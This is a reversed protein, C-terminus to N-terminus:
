RWSPPSIAAPRNAASRLARRTAVSIRRMVSRRVRREAGDSVQARTGPSLRRRGHDREGDAGARPAVRRLGAHRRDRLRRRPLLGDRPVSGQRGPHLYTRPDHRRGRARAHGQRHGRRGAGHAQGHRGASEQRRRGADAAQASGRADPDRDAQRRAVEACGTGEAHPTRSEAAAGRGPRRRRELDPRRRPRGAAPRHAEDYAGTSQRAEM